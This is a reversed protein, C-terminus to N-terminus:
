VADSAKEGDEDLIGQSTPQYRFVQDAGPPFFLETTGSGEHVRVSRETKKGQEEKSKNDRQTLTRQSGDAAQVVDFFDGDTFHHYLQLVPYDPNVWYVRGDDTEVSGPNTFIWVRDSETIEEYGHSSVSVHQESNHYGDCSPCLGDDTDTPDTTPM